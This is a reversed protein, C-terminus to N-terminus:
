IGSDPTVNSCLGTNKFHLSHLVTVLSSRGETWSVAREGKSKHSPNGHHKYDLRGRFKSSAVHLFVSPEWKKCLSRDFVGGAFMFWTVPAQSSVMHGGEEEGQGYKSGRREYLPPLASGINLKVSLTLEEM